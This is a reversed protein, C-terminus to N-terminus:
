IKEMLEPNEYKNGLHILVKEEEVYFGKGRTYKPKLRFGGFAFYVEYIEGCNMGFQDWDDPIKVIDGEYIDNGESDHMGTYQMLIIEPLTRRSVMGKSTEIWVNQLIGQEFWLRAVYYIRQTQKDWARYKPIM